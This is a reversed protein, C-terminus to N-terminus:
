SAGPRSPRATAPPLAQELADLVFGAHATRSVRWGVIRRAYADIVDACIRLMQRSALYVFGAWTSVYTFDSLWLRNPAPAHFVRNAHDLPCPAGKDSITTRVPKGRIVGALGMGQMLREVTCRAVDFGERMMQRWVKRAGYVEFNEAFVREIEPRLAADRLAQASCKSPDLRRAVHAHYTSPAIPLVKCIPEVGYAGRHDDIFAIM